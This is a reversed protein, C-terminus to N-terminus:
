AGTMLTQALCEVTDPDLPLMRLKQATTPYAYHLHHITLDGDEWAAFTADPTGYRPQGLSGPNVLWGSELRRLAPHHTHGVLIIDASSGLAGRLEAESITMPSNVGPLGHGHALVFHAGGLTLEVQPPLGALYDRQPQTLVRRAHTLTEDVLPAIEPEDQSPISDVAALDDDGQVGIAPSHRFWDVV